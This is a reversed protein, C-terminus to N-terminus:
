VDSVCVADCAGPNDCFEDMECDSDANCVIDVCEENCVIKPPHCVIPPQEEIDSSEEVAPSSTEKEEPIEVGGSELQYVNTCGLIFVALLILFITKKM